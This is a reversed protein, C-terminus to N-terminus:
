PGDAGLSGAPAPAQGWPLFCAFAARSHFVPGPWGLDGCCVCAQGPDQSPAPSLRPSFKTLLAAGPPPGQALGAQGTGERGVGRNGAPAPCLPPLPQSGLDEKLHGASQPARTHM